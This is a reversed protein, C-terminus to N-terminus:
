YNRFPGSILHWLTQYKNDKADELGFHFNKADARQYTGFLRDWFSFVAGYNSDTFQQPYSHHVRHFDATAFVYGFVKEFWNPFKLNTHQIFLLPIYITFYVIITDVGYGFIAATTMESITVGMNDFPHFRYTTTSDMEMDSHHIKHFRWILNTTHSLRHYFYDGCDLLLIGVIIKLIPHISFLNLLGWHQADIYNYWAAAVYNVPTTIIIYFLLLGINRATHKPRNEVKVLYPWFTELTFFVTIFAFIKLNNYFEDFLFDM